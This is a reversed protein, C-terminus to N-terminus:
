SNTIEAKTYPFAYAGLHYVQNTESRARALEVIQAIAKGLIAKAEEYKEVSLGIVLGEIHRNERPIIEISDIAKALAAQHYRALAVRYVDGRCEILRPDALRYKETGEIKEIFKTSELFEFAKKIEALEAPFTLSARVKEFDVPGGSINIIERLVICLWQSFYRYTEYEKQNLQRFRKSRQVRQLFRQESSLNPTEKREHLAFLFTAEHDPLGLIPIMDELLKKTLTRKRSLVLSLMGASYGMRRNWARLSLQPNKSKRFQFWAQIFEIPDDFSFVDPRTVREKKLTEV